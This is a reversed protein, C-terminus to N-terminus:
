EEMLLWEIAADYEFFQKLRFGQVDMCSRFRKAAEIREETNPILIAIKKDFHLKFKACEEAFAMLDQIDTQVNADRLDVLIDQDKHIQIATALEHILSISQTCDLEGAETKQICGGIKYITTDAIMREDIGLWQKADDLHRFLEVELPVETMELHTQFMRGLGFDFGDNFVIATKGERRIEALQSAYQALNTIEDTTIASINAETFDWLTIPTVSGKYYSDLCDYFDVMGVKGVVKFTTLDQPLDYTTEISGM